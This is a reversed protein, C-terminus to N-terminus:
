LSVAHVSCTASPAGTSVAGLHINVVSNFEIPLAFDAEVLTPNSTPKSFLELLFQGIINFITLAYEGGTERDILVAILTILIKWLMHFIM